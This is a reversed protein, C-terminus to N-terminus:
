AAVPWFVTGGPKTINGVTGASFGKMEANHVQSIINGTERDVQLGTRQGLIGWKLDWFLTADVFMRFNKILGTALMPAENGNESTLALTWDLDAGPYRKTLCSGDGTSSGSNVSTKAERTFTLVAQTIHELRTLTTGDYVCAKAACPPFETVTSEDVILNGQSITLEGNGGFNVTHNILENTQFNWTIACSIVYASGTFIDGNDVDGTADPAKYGQFSIYEGPMKFPTHGYALYSGTWDFIGRNRNAGHQTNSAVTKLTTYGENISWNRVASVGNIAGYIGTHEM